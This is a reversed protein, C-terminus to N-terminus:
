LHPHSFKGDNSITVKTAGIRDSWEISAISYGDVRERQYYPIKQFESGFEFCHYGYGGEPSGRPM